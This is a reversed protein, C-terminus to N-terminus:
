YSEFVFKSGGDGAEELGRGATEDGYYHRELDSQVVIRSNRIRGSNRTSTAFSFRSGNQMRDAPALVSAPYDELATCHPPLLPDDLLPIPLLSMETEDLTVFREHKSEVANSDVGTKDKKGNRNKSAVPVEYSPREIQYFGGELLGVSSERREM